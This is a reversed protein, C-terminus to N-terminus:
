HIRAVEPAQKLSHYSFCYHEFNRKTNDEDHDHDVMCLTKWNCDDLLIKGAAVFVNPESRYTPPSIFISVAGNLPMIQYM